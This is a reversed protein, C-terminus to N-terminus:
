GVHRPVKCLRNKTTFFMTFGKEFCNQITDSHKTENTEQLRLFGHQFPLGMTAVIAQGVTKKKLEIKRFFRTIEDM